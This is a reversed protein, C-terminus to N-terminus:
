FGLLNSKRYNIEDDIASIYDESFPQLNPLKSVSMTPILSDYKIKYKTLYTKFSTCQTKFKETKAKPTYQEILLLAKQNNTVLSEILKRMYLNNQIGNTSDNNVRIVYSEMVGYGEVKYNDLEAKLKKNVMFLERIETLKVLQEKNDKIKENMFGSGFLITLITTAITVINRVSEMKSSM